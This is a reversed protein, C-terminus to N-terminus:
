AGLLAKYPDELAQTIWNIFAAGDAGDILRHDYSLSLPLIERPKFEDEIYVPKKASRSIGLIGSQPAPVIPTFNTGGIGGLNSISFCRSFSVPCHPSDMQNKAMQFFRKHTQCFPM